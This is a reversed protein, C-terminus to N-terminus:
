KIEGDRKQIEWIPSSNQRLVKDSATSIVITYIKKVDDVFSLFTYRTVADLEIKTKRSM